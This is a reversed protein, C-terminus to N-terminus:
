RPFQHYSMRPKRNWSFLRRLPQQKPIPPSQGGTLTRSSAPQQRSSPPHNRWMACRKSPRSEHTSEAISNEREAISLDLGEKESARIGKDELLINVEEIFSAILRSQSSTTQVPRLAQTAAGNLELCLMLPVCCSLLLLISCSSLFFGM